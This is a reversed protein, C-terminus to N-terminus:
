RETYLTRGELIGNFASFKAGKRASIVVKGATFDRHTRSDLYM